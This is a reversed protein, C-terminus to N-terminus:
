TNAMRKNCKTLTSLIPAYVYLIIITGLAASIISAWVSRPQSCSWHVFSTKQRCTYDTFRRGLGPKKLEGIKVFGAELKDSSTDNNTFSSKEAIKDGFGAFGLRQRGGIAKDVFFVKVARIGNM